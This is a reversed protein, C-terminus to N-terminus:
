KIINFIINFKKFNFFYPSLIRLIIKRKTKLDKLGKRKRQKRREIYAVDKDICDTSSVTSFNDKFLKYADLLMKQQQIESEILKINSEELFSSEYQNIPSSVEMPQIEESISM